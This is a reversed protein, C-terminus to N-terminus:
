MGLIIFLYDKRSCHSLQMSALGLVRSFHMFLTQDSFNLWNGLRLDECQDSYDHLLWFVHAVIRM